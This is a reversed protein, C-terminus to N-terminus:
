QVVEVYNYMNCRQFIYTWSVVSLLLLLYVIYLGVIGSLIIAVVVFPSIESSENRIPTSTSERTTLFSNPSKKITLLRTIDQIQENPHTISHVNQDSVKLNTVQISTIDSINYKINEKIPTQTEKIPYTEHKEESIPSALIIISVYISDVLISIMLSKILLTRTSFM